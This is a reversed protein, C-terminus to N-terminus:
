GKSKASKKTSPPPAALGQIILCFFHDAIEQANLRQDELYWQYVWNCMGFIALTTARVDNTAFEGTKVGDSIVEEMLGRYRRANAHVVDLQESPLERAHEFFVRVHSHLTKIVSVLDTIMGHLREAASVDEHKRAAHADVLAALFEEHILFLIEAKGQPFYHYLTPKALHVAQAVDNMSTSHYGDQDFLKAATAIVLRRRDDAQASFTGTAATKELSLKSTM